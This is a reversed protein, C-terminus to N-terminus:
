SVRELSVKLNAEKRLENLFLGVMDNDSNPWAAYVTYNKVGLLRLDMEASERKKWKLLIEELRILWDIPNMGKPATKAAVVLGTEDCYSQILESVQTKCSGCGASARTSKRIALPDVEGHKKIRDVIQTKTVNFCRCVLDQALTTKQWYGLLRGLQWYILQGHGSLQATLKFAELLSLGVIQEGIAELDSRSGQAFKYKWATIIEKKNFNLQSEIDEFRLIDSPLELEGFFKDREM